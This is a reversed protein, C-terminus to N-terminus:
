LQKWEVEQEPIVVEVWIQGPVFKIEQGNADYFFLKSDASMKSKKWTGKIEQGNMFFRASGGEKTDFWPDGLQLNNYRGSINTPGTKEAEPLGAWPDQVGRATYDVNAMIQENEATVVVINKPAIRQGNNRDTDPENGWTRPYSNTAKDYDYEAEMMGPYGVRLHGGAPRDADAAEAQHPYGVFKNESRYGFEKACSLISEGKAFGTDEVRMLGSREKRFCCQPAKKGGEGNCDINDIVGDNLKKVAFASGGWGVFVADLGKAINIYDHRASRLAGIENPINCLYVGMLRTVFIGAAPNPMEFVMDAQSFGAVPRAQKDVPQMFAFPRRNWNDCALGSIPSVNGENIPGSSVQAAENEMKIRDVRSKRFADRGVTFYLVGLAAAIAVIAVIVKQKKDM